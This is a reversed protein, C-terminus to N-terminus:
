KATTDSGKAAKRGTSPSSSTSSDILAKDESTLESVKKTWVNVGFPTKREFRVQDGQVIAKVPEETSPVPKAAGEDARGKNIGFPTKTYIWEVGQADKVRYHQEDIKVADTPITVPTFHEKKSSPSPRIGHEIVRKQPTSQVGNTAAPKAAKNTDAANQPNAIALSALSFVSAILKTKM